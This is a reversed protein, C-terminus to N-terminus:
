LFVFYTGNPQIRIQKIKTGKCSRYPNANDTRTKTFFPFLQNALQTLSPVYYSRQQQQHQKQCILCADCAKSVDVNHVSHHNYVRMRRRVFAVSMGGSLNDRDSKQTAHMRQLGFRLGLHHHRTWYEIQQVIRCVSETRFCRIRLANM